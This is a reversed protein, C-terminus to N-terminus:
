FHNVGYADGQAIWHLRRAPASTVYLSNVATNLNQWKIETSSCSTGCAAAYTDDIETSTFNEGSTGASHIAFYFNMWDIEVGADAAYSGCKSEKWKWTTRAHVAVPPPAVNNVAWEVHKYYVFIPNENWDLNMADVAIFHAFGENQAAGLHEISQLCHGREDEDVESCDCLGSEARDYNSPFLGTLKHQVSHGLEHAISYKSMAHWGTPEGAMTQGTHGLYLVDAVPCGPVVAKCYKSPAFYSNAPDENAAVVLYNQNQRLGIDAETAFQVAMAAVNVRPDGLDGVEVGRTVNSGGTLHYNTTVYYGRQSYTLNPILRVDFTVNWVPKKVLTTLTIEYTGTERTVPPFCGLSNLYGEHLTVGNKRLYAYTYAAARLGYAQGSSHLLYDEGKGQDTYSHKWSPCYTLTAAQADASPLSTGAVLLLILLIRHLVKM